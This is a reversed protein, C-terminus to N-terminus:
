FSRRIHLEHGDMWSRTRRDAGVGASQCKFIQFQSSEGCRKSFNWNGATNLALPLHLNTGTCAMRSYLALPSIIGSMRLAPVLQFHITLM